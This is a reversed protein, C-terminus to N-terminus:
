PIVLDARSNLQSPLFRLKATVLQSILCSMESKIEESMLYSYYSRDCLITRLILPFQM